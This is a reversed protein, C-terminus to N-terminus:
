PLHTWALGEYEFAAQAFAAELSDHYADTVVAGRENLHFLYFGDDGPYRAIALAAAPGFEAGGVAHRTARTPEADDTVAAYQVVKAGDLKQPPQSVLHVTGCPNADPSTGARWPTTTSCEGRIKSRSM